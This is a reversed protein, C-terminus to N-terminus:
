TMICQSCQDSAELARKRRQNELLSANRLPKRVVNGLDGASFQHLQVVGRHKTIERRRRAVSQFSQSSVERALVRDSYVIL